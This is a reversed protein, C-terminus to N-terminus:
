PMTRPPAYVNARVTRWGREALKQELQNRLRRRRGLLTQKVASDEPLVKGIRVTVRGDRSWKLRPDPARSAILHALEDALPRVNLRMQMPRVQRRGASSRAATRAAVDVSWRQVEARSSGLATGGHREIVFDIVPPRWEASEIRGLLKRGSMRSERSGALEHWCSALLGALTDLDPVPGEPGEALYRELDAISM